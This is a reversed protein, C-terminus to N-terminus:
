ALAEEIDGVLAHIIVLHVEQIRPTETSPVDLLLDARGCVAGGGQGTLAISILGRSRGTELARLINPSGGSTTLALLIDGADGLAEVQRSFVAEFAIDNGISTLVSTDTSLALARLAPRPRSFKNVLEAAFHQAEAASGGNGLALIKRGGRLAAVCAEVASRYAEARTLFFEDTLRGLEAGLSRGSM